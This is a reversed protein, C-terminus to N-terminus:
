ISADLLRQRFRQRVRLGALRFQEAVLLLEVSEDFVDLGRISDLEEPVVEAYAVTAKSLFRKTM